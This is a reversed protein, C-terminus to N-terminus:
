IHIQIGSSSMHPIYCYGEHSWEAFMRDLNELTQKGAATYVPTDFDMEEECDCCHTIFSTFLLPGNFDYFHSNEPDEGFEDIINEYCPTCLFYRVQEALAQNFKIATAM